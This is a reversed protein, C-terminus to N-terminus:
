VTHTKDYLEDLEEELEEIRRMNVTTYGENIAYSGSAVIKNREDDERELRDIKIKIDIIRDLIKRTINM